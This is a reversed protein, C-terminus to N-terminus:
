TKILLRRLARLQVRQRWDRFVQKSERASGSELRGMELEGKIWQLREMNEILSGGLIKAISKM